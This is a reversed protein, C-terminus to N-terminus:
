VVPQEMKWAIISPPIATKPQLDTEAVFEALNAALLEKLDKLFADFTSAPQFDSNEFGHNFKALNNLQVSVDDWADKLHTSAACLGIWKPHDSTFFHAGDVFTYTVSVADMM